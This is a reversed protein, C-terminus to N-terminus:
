VHARRIEAQQRATGADRFALERFMLESTELSMGRTHLGIASLFRVNRILANLL